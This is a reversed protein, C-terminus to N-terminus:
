SVVRFYLLTILFRVCILLINLFYDILHGIFTHKLTVHPWTFKWVVLRVVAQVNLAAEESETCIQEWPKLNLICSVIM